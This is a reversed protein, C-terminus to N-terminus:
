NKNFKDMKIGIMKESDYGHHVVCLYTKKDDREFTFACLNQFEPPRRDLIKFSGGNPAQFEWSAVKHRHLKRNIKGEEVKKRLEELNCYEIFHLVAANQYDRAQKWEGDIMIAVQRSARQLGFTSAIPENKPISYNFTEYEPRMYEHPLSIM